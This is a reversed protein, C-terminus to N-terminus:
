DLWVNMGCHIDGSLRAWLPLITKSHLFISVESKEPM